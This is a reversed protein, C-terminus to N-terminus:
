CYQNMKFSKKHTVPNQVHMINNNVCAINVRATQAISM